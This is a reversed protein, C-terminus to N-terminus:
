TYTNKLYLYSLHSSHKLNREPNTAALIWRCESLGIINQKKKKKNIENEHPVAM